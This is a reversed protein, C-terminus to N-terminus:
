LDARHAMQSSLLEVGAPREVVRNALDHGGPALGFPSLTEQSLNKQRKSAERKKKRQARQRQEDTLRLGLLRVTFAKDEHTIRVERSCERGVPAHRSKLWALVNISTGDEEELPMAKPNFRVVVDAMKGKVWAVRERLSNIADSVLLDGAQIDFVELREAVHKTTVHLQTLRGSLRISPRICGICWEKPAPVPSIPAM